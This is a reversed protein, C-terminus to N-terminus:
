FYILVNVLMPLPIITDSGTKTKAECLGFNNAISKRNPRIKRLRPQANYNPFQRLKQQLNKGNSTSCIVQRHHHLIRICAATNMRRYNSTRIETQNLIEGNSELRNRHSLRGALYHQPPTGGTKVQRFVLIRM